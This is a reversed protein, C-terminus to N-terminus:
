DWNPQELVRRPTPDIASGTLYDREAQDENVQIFYEGNWLLQEQAISGSAYIQNYTELSTVDNQIAAMEASAKLAALYLTGMWSSTGGVNADLTMWQPGSLLGDKDIDWRTIVYDMAKKINPWNGDLWANDKTLLHERYSSLIEGCQGDFVVINDPHRHPLGGDNFQHSFSTNRRSRAIEPFLRAHAQAYHAVHNVSGEGLPKDKSIGEWNGYVDNAAWFATQAKLIATQSTIRDIVYHPLNSEYMATHYDKTQDSLQDINDVIYEAMEKANSWWTNYKNGTHSWNGRGHINEPFSWTLVFTVEHSAGPALSYMSNIAGTYTAGNSSPNTEITESLSGDMSYSSIFDTINGIDASGNANNDTSFLVM